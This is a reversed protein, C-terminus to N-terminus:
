LKKTVDWYVIAWDRSPKKIVEGLAKKKAFYEQLLSQEADTLSGLGLKVQQELEEYTEVTKQSNPNTIYNLKPNIGLEHLINVAYIYNPGSKVERKLARIIEPDIFSDNVTHTTYVRLKAQNNLKILAAELDQVLTSRSAIAIDCQPIEQWSDEWAKNILHINDIHQKDVRSQCIELMKSSYDVAYVDDFWDAVSLAISGTGCGMDFLTKADSFDMFDIFQEVYHDKSNVAKQPLQEAKKDWHEPPRPTPRVQKIHNKYLTSFCINNIGM